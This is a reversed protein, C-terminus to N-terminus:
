KEREHDSEKRRKIAALTAWSRWATVNPPLEREEAEREARLTNIIDALRREIELVEDLNPNLEYMEDLIDASEGSEFREFFLEIEPRM